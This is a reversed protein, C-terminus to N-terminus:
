ANEVPEAADLNHLFRSGEGPGMVIVVEHVYKDVSHVHLSDGGTTKVLIGSATRFLLGARVSTQEAYGM